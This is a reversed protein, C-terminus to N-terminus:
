PLLRLLAATAAIMAEAETRSYTYDKTGSDAHLAGSAQHELDARIRAWREDATQQDKDKKGPWAWCSGARIQELARRVELIAGDIDNGGLRRQAERLYDSVAQHPGDGLPFPITMEVGLSRGLGELQQRWRSEAVSLYETVQPSGPYRDTRPLFGRVDLELFLDGVRQAELALIQAGTLLFRLTLRDPGGNGSAVSVRAAGLFARPTSHSPSAHLDAELILLHTGTRNAPASVALPVDLWHTGMGKHIWLSDTQVDIVYKTEDEFRLENM